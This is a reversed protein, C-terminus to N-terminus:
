VFHWRCIMLNGPNEPTVPQLVGSIDGNMNIYQFEFGPFDKETLGHLKHHEGWFGKPENHPVTILLRQCHQQLKTIIELGNDLHEIVEFAIITDHQNLDYTNIDAWYFQRNKGWQQEKAVDVIIPDYDLGIYSINKPLFQSGYGTSCGLELVDNGYINKAAWEYRQTERPFVADGKLFVAREYNNSLKFRYWEPNYKKALKLSNRYFTDNWNKVLDTDHVTGEGKHYIPFYGTYQIGDYGKDFVECMQFGAEEARICFETDEGSGTGYEENLLGIINFVKRSIMVCFFVAFFRNAPESFDKIICSIGCQINQEFPLNLINLWDGKAQELLITDNNLLVIQDGTAAKIGDNTAKPYGSPEDNWVVKLNPVATVLYDLYQRTNDKCGNASIVLEVDTMDTYKIISDICPKLYKECNNYTPIVISYKM